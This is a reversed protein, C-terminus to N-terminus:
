FLNILEYLGKVNFFQLGGGNGYFSLLEFKIYKVIHEAFTFKKLPLPDPLFRSDRLTKHVVEDWSGNGTKSVLVKFEKTSRDKYQANHTNVLEVMSVRTECGLDVTFSGGKKDPGLWYNKEM